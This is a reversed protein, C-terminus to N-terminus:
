KAPIASSNLQFTGKKWAVGLFTYSFTGAYQESADGEQQSLKAATASLTGDHGCIGPTDAIVHIIRESRTGRFPIPEACDQSGTLHIVGEIYAGVERTVTITMAGREDNGANEWTGILRKPVAACASHATFFLFCALLFFRYQM